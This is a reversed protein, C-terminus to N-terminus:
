LRGRATDLVATAAAARARAEERRLEAQFSADLADLVDLSSSLGEGFRREASRAADEAVTVEEAALTYTARSLALERRADLVEQAVTLEERRRQARAQRIGADARKKGARRSGGAYVTWKLSLGVQAAYNLGTVYEATNANAGLTADLTPAYRMRSSRVRLQAAREDARRAAMEPRDRLADEVATKADPIAVPAAIDPLEVRVRGGTGLLVGMSLQARQLEAKATLLDNQRRLVQLKAQNRSLTTAQGVTVLRQTRELHAASNGVAREAVGVFAEAAGALWAAQRIAGRLQVRVSERSAKSADVSARASKIDAYAHAAFLPVQVQVGGTLSQLPQITTAGGGEGLDVPMGTSQELAQAIGAFSEGLDLVAEDNNLTYNASLGVFPKVAALASQAVAEADDLAAAASELDPNNAELRQLAEDLSVTEVDDARAPSGEYAPAVVALASLALTAALLLVPM